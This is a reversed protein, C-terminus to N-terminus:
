EKEPIVSKLEQLYLDIYNQINKHQYQVVWRPHPLTNLTKFWRHEKNLAALNKVNKGKGISFAIDSNALEKAQKTISDRIMSHSAKLLEQSDYYNYNIGKRIFGIPSVSTFHFYRFFREPGGFQRIMEYMFVSSPESKMELNHAIGCAEFLRIPDTFGIGTKGAGLRGPNIGFLLIRPYDDNYFRYYFKQMYNWVDPDRFPLLAEIEKPLEPPVLDSYFSLVSDAFSM